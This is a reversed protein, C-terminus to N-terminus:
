FTSFSNPSNPHKLRSVLCNPSTLKLMKFNSSHAKSHWFLQTSQPSTLKPINSNPSHAKSHWIVFFSNSSNPSTLKPINSHFVCLKSRESRKRLDLFFTQFWSLKWSLHFHQNESFQNILTDGFRKAFITPQCFGCFPQCNVHVLKLPLLTTSFSCSKCSKFAAYEFEWNKMCLNRVM